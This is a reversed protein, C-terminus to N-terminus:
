EGFVEGDGTGEGDGDMDEKDSYAGEMWIGSIDKRSYSSILRLM